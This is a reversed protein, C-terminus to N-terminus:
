DPEQEQRSPRRILGASRAILWIVLCFVGVATLIGLDRLRNGTDAFFPILTAAVCFALLCEIWWRWRRRGIEARFALGAVVALIGFMIADGSLKGLPLSGQVVSQNLGADLSMVWRLFIVIGLGSALTTASTFIVGNIFTMPRM